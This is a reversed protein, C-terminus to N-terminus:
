IDLINIINNTINILYGLGYKEICSYKKFDCYISVIFICISIHKRNWKVKNDFDQLRQSTYVKYGFFM